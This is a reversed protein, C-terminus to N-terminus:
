KFRVSRARQQKRAAEMEATNSLGTVLQSLPMVVPDAVSQEVFTEATPDGQDDLVVREPGFFVTVSPNTEGPKIDAQFRWVSYGM